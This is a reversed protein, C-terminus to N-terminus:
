HFSFTYYADVSADTGSRGIISIRRTLQWSLKVAGSADSLGREVSLVLGPMLRKGVSVVQDGASSSLSTAGAVTQGPLKSAGGMDAAGVSFEDFGLGQVIDRPINRSGDGGFIAGAASMLVSADNGAIQNSGRGLVLWSLKDADPVSPESVLRVQPAAVTGVVEVGAEVELGTRLARINLGPNGPSGQFNLIGRDIALQQGYGEYVGGVTRISGSAQLPGGDNSRLRITGALSTDLGSGSFVFRPGMDFSVDIRTKLGKRGEVVDSDPTGSKGSARKVIVDSSLSPPPSKPLKFYAGDTNIKGTLAWIDSAQNISGQGSVVLWRDKRQLLPFQQFQAQISGSHQSFDIEGAASLEGKQGIWNIDRFRAHNPMSSVKNSFQLQTLKLHKEDLQASLIGNPLLLGESAFALELERGEIQAQYKPTSIIGGLRADVKLKGKLALNPNLWPGLWQLDPVDARLDGNLAADAPLTWLDLKKRLQSNAKLQWHGLRAGSADLQLSIREADTGAILGGLALRLQLDSVGLALPKGTGDVDNVRIDGSQRQLHLAGRVNDKLEVDWDANVQLDGSLATQPKVLNLLDVLRVESLKGRTKIRGPMWDFQELALKGLAGSLQAAGLHLAPKEAGLEASLQMPALLQLDPNGSLSLRALQGSWQPTKGAPATLGGSAAMLLQRAASFRANLEIQHADRRGKVSLGLQEALLPMKKGPVSANAMPTGSSPAAKNSAPINARLEVGSLEANIVGRADNDLEIKANLSNLHLQQAIGIGQASLSLKGAPLALTGRLHAEAQVSGTLRAGLLPSLAPMDPAEVQIILEDKGNGWAGHANFTNKGWRLDMKQVSLAREAQWSAALLGSLAQGAYEGQLRPVQANIILAPKLQGRLSIEADIHGAPGTLWRSPDFRQLVGQFSFNQQDALNIEGQGQVRSDAALLEFRSLKLLANAGAGAMQYSAEANLSARPDRLQTQLTLWNAGGKDAAVTATDARTQVHIAGSIQSTRIRSDLQALNIGSLDFHAEVQPWGTAPLAISSAGRILGNGPLQIRANDLTILAESWHLDSRLALVPLGHQDIRAPQANDIAVSGALAPATQKKGATAKNAPPAQLNALLNAQINLQAHPATVSFDAPNLGSINAQLSRLPQASFATIVASFGGQLVGAKPGTASGAVDASVSDSLAKAQISLQELSGQLTGTVGLNPITKHVQGIYSFQGQLSFPKSSAVKAQLQLRGWPSTLATDIAHQLRTSDVQASIASLQLTTLESGDSQLSSISLRGIAVRKINLVVPLRLDAPLRAPTPDPTSAFKLSALELTDVALKGALLARPQWVLKIGSAFLRTNKTVYSLEDIHLEDALRGSPATVKLAGGTFAQALQLLARTGAQSLYVWGVAMLFVTMLTLGAALLRWVTRRPGATKAAPTASAESAVTIHEPLSM